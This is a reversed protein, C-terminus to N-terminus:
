RLYFQQQVAPPKHTGFQSKNQRERAAKRRERLMKFHALRDDKKEAEKRLLEGMREENPAWRSRLIRRVAEPSVKFQNALNETSHTEPDQRHMARLQDMVDRSLKRKPNWGDPFRRKMAERHASFPRPLPELRPGHQSPRPLAATPSSSEPIDEEIPKTFEVDDLADITSPKPHGASYNRTMGLSIQRLNTLM